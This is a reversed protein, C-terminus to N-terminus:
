KCYKIFNYDEAKRRNALGQLYIGKSYVWRNFEAGASRCDGRNVKKLITSNKFNTIGVNWVFDVLMERQEQALPVKILPAIDKHINNMLVVEKEQCEQQTYHKGQIVFGRAFANTIGRCTTLTGTRDRYPLYRVGEWQSTFEYQRETTYTAVGGIIISSAAIVPFLTKRIDM